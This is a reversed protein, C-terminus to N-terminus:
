SSPSTELKGFAEMVDSAGRLIAFIIKSFQGDFERIIDAYAEAVDKSNNEFVGCGYAGLVLINTDEEAAAKFQSRIKTRLLDLYDARSLNIEANKDKRMDPAASFIFNASQTKELLEFRGNVHIRVNPILMSSEDELPYYKEDDHALAALTPSLEPASFVCAEEQAICGDPHGGGINYKDAFVVASVVSDESVHRLVTDITNDDIVTIETERKVQGHASSASESESKKGSVIRTAEIRAKIADRASSGEADLMAMNQEHLVALGVHKYAVPMYVGLTRDQRSFLHNPDRSFILKTSPTEGQVLDRMEQFKKANSTLTGSLPKGERDHDIYETTDHATLAVGTKGKIKKSVASIGDKTDLLKMLENFEDSRATSAAAAAASAASDDTNALPMDTDDSASAMVSSFIIALASFAALNMKSKSIM